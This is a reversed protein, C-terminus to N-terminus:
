HSATLKQTALWSVLDGASEMRSLTLEWNPPLGIRSALAIWMAADRLSVPDLGLEALRDDPRIETAARLQAQQIFEALLALLTEAEVGSAAAAHVELRPAPAPLRRRRSRLTDALWFVAAAVVIFPILM